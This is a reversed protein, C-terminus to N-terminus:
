RHRRRFVGAGCRREYEPIASGCDVTQRATGTRAPEAIRRAVKAPGPVGPDESRHEEIGARRPRGGGASDQRRRGRSRPFFHPNRRRRRAAGSPGCRHCRRRAPRRRGAGGRGPARRHASTLQRTPHAANGLDRYRLAIGSGRQRLDGLLRRRHDQIAARWANRRAARHSRHAACSARWLTRSTRVSWPLIASSMPRWSALWVATRKAWGCLETALFKRRRSHASLRREAPRQPWAPTCGPLGASRPQPIPSPNRAIQRSCAGFERVQRCGNRAFPRNPHCAAKGAAFNM